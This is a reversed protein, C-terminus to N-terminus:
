LMKIGNNDNLNRELKSRYKEGKEEDDEWTEEFKSRLDYIKGNINYKKVEYYYILYETYKFCYWTRKTRNNLNNKIREVVIQEPRIDKKLYKGQDVIETDNFTNGDFDVITFNRIFKYELFEIGENDTITNISIDEKVKRSKYLPYMEKIDNIINDFKIDNSSDKKELDIPYTKIIEPIKIGKEKIFEILEKNDVISKLLSDKPKEKFFSTEVLIINELFNESPFIEMFTKLINTYSKTLRTTNYDRVLIFTSIIGRKQLKTIQEKNKKDEEQDNLGPTDVFYINYGDIFLKVIQINKTCSKSESSTICLNDNTISNIFTSKGSGTEGLLVVFRDKPGLKINNLFDEVDFGIFEVFKRELYELM